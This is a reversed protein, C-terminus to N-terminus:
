ISTKETKFARTFLLSSFAIFVMLPFVLLNFLLQFAFIILCAIAFFVGALLLFATNSFSIISAQLPQKNIRTSRRANDSPELTNYTSIKSINASQQM